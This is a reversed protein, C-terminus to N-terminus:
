RRKQDVHDHYTDFRQGKGTWTYRGERGDWFYGPPSQWVTTNGFCAFLKYKDAFWRSLTDNPITSIYPRVALTIQDIGDTPEYRLM